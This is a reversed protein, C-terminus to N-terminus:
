VLTLLIFYCIIIKDCIHSMPRLIFVQQDCIQSMPRVCITAADCIHSMPGTLTLLKGSHKSSKNTCNTQVLCSFVRSVNCHCENWIHKWVQYQYASMLM